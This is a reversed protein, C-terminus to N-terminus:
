KTKSQFLKYGCHILVLASLIILTMLVAFSIYDDQTLPGDIESFKFMFYATGSCALAGAVTSFIYVILDNIDVAISNKAKTVLSSTGLIFGVLLLMPFIGYGIILTPVLLITILAALLRYTQIIKIM